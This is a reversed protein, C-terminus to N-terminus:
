QLYEPLNILRTFRDLHTRADSLAPITAAPLVQVLSGRRTVIKWYSTPIQEIIYPHHSTIILQLDPARSILFRTAAPLCNIGLFSGLALKWDKILWAAAAFIAIMAIPTPLQLLDTLGNVLWGFLDAVLDFFEGATAQVRSM